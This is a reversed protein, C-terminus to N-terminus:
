RSPLATAEERITSASGGRVEGSDLNLVSASALGGFPDIVENGVFAVDDLWLRGHNLVAGAAALTPYRRSLLNGEFRCRRLRLVGHNILTAADRGAEHVDNWGFLSDSAELLGHNLVVGRLGDGNSDLVAVHDLRLRGRNRIAGRSGEALTLERLVLDAAPAIDLLTMPERGYRRIEAGHGHILLRGRVSPLGLSGALPTSLTYLGGAALHITEISPDANAQEIAAVLGASDRNAVQLEAAAAPALPLVVWLLSILLRM